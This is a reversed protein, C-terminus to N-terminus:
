QTCPAGRVLQATGDQALLWLEGNAAGYMKKWQPGGPLLGDQAVWVGLAGTPSVDLRHLGRANLAWSRRCFQVFDEAGGELPESIQVGSPLSYVRGDAFGLRGRDGDAWVKKWQGGPVDLSTVTWRQETEAELAFVRNETLVFGEFLTGADPRAAFVTFSLVPVQPEPVAKVDVQKPLGSGTDDAIEGGLVADNATMVLYVRGDSGKVSTGLVPPTLDARAPTAFFRADQPPLTLNSIPGVRGDDYLLWSGSIWAPYTGQREVQQHLAMGVAPTEIFMTRRGLAILDGGYSLAVTPVEDLTLPAWDDLGDRRVQVNRGLAVAAASVHSLARTVPGEGRFGAGPRRTRFCAFGGSDTQLDYFISNGLAGRCESRLSSVLTAPDSGWQMDVFKEGPGCVPCNGRGVHRQIGTGCAQLSADSDLRLWHQAVGADSVVDVQVAVLPREVENLDPNDGVHISRFVMTAGIANDGGCNILADRGPSNIGFSRFDWDQPGPSNTIGGPVRETARMVGDVIAYVYRGDTDAMDDIPAFLEKVTTPPHQGSVDFVRYSGADTSFEIVYPAASNGVKLRNGIAPGFPAGADLDPVPAGGFRPAWRYRHLQGNAIAFVQDRAVALASVGPLRARGVFFRQPPRTGLLGQQSVAVSYVATGDSIALPSVDTQVGAAQTEYYTRGVGLRTVPGWPPSSTVRRGADLAVDPADTRLADGRPDICVGKPGCRFAGGCDFDARCAFSAEEDISHCALDAGCFM